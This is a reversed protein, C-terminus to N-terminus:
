LLNMLLMAVKGDKNQKITELCEKCDFKQSGQLLVPYANEFHFDKIQQGTWKKQKTIYPMVFDFAKSLSKGSPTKVYWLNTDTNESLQAIIFYAQLVFVTYHLSITREMEAPFSGTNDMQVDLRGAANKVIQNVLKKKGTYNAISLRLANYWVGHNNGAEMEEKGIKSTQMWTLFDSFWKKLAKQNSPSFHKSNELLRAGDMMFIFHRAEILGAGRGTNIGKVAQGYNFHPNMKTATDLFWVKILKAAHKGYKEDGSFYYALSLLFINESLRPLNQKDPYNKVEPTTQGDKRIYPLGNPKTPDPYWYPAISMYDHKNGSPPFDKKDMVSVPEFKLSNEAQKLLQKYAPMVTEDGSRIKAKSAAIKKSDLKILNYNPEKEQAAVFKGMTFFLALGLCIKKM